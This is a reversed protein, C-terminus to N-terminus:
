ISEIASIFIKDLIYNRENENKLFSPHPRFLGQHYFCTIDKQFIQSLYPDLWSKNPFDCPKLNKFISLYQSPEVIPTHHFSIHKMDMGKEWFCMWTINQIKFFKLNSFHEEFIKPCFQLKAWGHNILFQHYNKLYPLLTEVDYSQDQLFQFTTRSAKSIEAQLGFPSFNLKKFFKELHSWLIFGFFKKSEEYHLFIQNLFLSALHKNQYDPHISIGGVLFLELKEKLFNQEIETPFFIFSGIVKKEYLLIWIHSQNTKRFVQPFDQNYYYQKTYGFCLHLHEILSHILEPYDKLTCLNFKSLSL